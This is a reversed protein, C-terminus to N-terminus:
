VLQQVTPTDQTGRGTAQTYGAFSERKHAGKMCLLMVGYYVIFSHSCRFYNLPFCVESHRCCLKRLSYSHKNALHSLTLAFPVHSLPQMTPTQPPFKGNTLGPSDREQRRRTFDRAGQRAPQPPPTPQPQQGELMNVIDMRDISKLAAYLSEVASFVHSPSVCASLFFSFSPFPTGLVFLLFM